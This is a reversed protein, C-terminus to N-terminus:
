DTKGLICTKCVPPSSSLDIPMGDALGKTAMYLISQNNVHGLRCHWTDVTPIHVSQSLFASDTMFSKAPPHAISIHNLKYVNRGLIVEGMAIVTNGTGAKKIIANPFSFTTTFGAKALLAVSILCVTSTPIFLTPELLLFSGKRTKVKMAGIGTASM